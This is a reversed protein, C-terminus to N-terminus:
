KILRRFFYKVDKLFFVFSKLISKKRYEKPLIKEVRHGVLRIWTRTVKHDIADIISGFDFFHININKDWLRKAVIKTAAGASVIIVEAKDCNKEILPWWEDINNYASRPPVEIYLYIKGYLKEATEKKTSGVFMKKKPRVYKELFSYILAPRFVSLYHFTVPNYLELSIEEFQKLVFQELDKNFSYNAFVGDSMGKEFPMNIAVAKIFSPHQISFAKKMDKRLQPSAKQNRRDKEMMDFIEGDGFRLFYVKDENELRRILYNLTELTTKTKVERM